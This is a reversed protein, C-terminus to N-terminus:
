VQACRSRERRIYIAPQRFPPRGKPVHVTRATLPDGNHLHGNFKQSAEMNHIVAIIYWPVDTLAELSQYREKNQILTSALHEVTNQREPRVQCSDFLNQYEERLQPTLSPMEPKEKQNAAMNSVRFGRFLPQEHKVKIRITIITLIGNRLSILEKKRFGADRITIVLLIIVTPTGLRRGWILAHAHAM